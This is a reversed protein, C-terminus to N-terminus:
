YINEHNILKLILQETSNKGQDSDNDLKPRYM